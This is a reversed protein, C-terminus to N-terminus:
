MTWSEVTVMEVTVTDGADASQIQLVMEAGGKCDVTGAAYEIAPDCTDNLVYGMIKQNSADTFRVTIEALWEVATVDDFTISVAQTAGIKLHLVAAANAGTKTGACKFRFTLGAPPKAPVLVKSGTVDSTGAAAQSTQTNSAAVIGPVVKFRADLNNM